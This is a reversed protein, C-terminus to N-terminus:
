HQNEWLKIEFTHILTLITYDTYFNSLPTSLRTNPVQYPCSVEEEQEEQEEGLCGSQSHYRGM